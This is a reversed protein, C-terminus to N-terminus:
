LELLSGLKAADAKEFRISESLEQKVVVFLCSQSAELLVVLKVEVVLSGRRTNGLGLQHSVFLEDPGVGLRVVSLVVIRARRFRAVLSMLELSVGSALGPRKSTTSTRVEATLAGFAASAALVLLVVLRPGVAAVFLRVRGVLVVVAALELAVLARPAAAPAAFLLEDTPSHRVRETPRSRHDESQPGGEVSRKTKADALSSSFLLESLGRRM